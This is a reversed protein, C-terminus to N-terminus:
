CTIPANRLPMGTRQGAASDTFHILRSLGACSIGDEWRFAANNKAQLKAQGQRLAAYEKSNKKAHGQRLFSAATM